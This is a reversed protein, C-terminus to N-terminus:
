KTATQAPPRSQASYAGHRPGLGLNTQDWCWPCDGIVNHPCTQGIMASQPPRVSDSSPAAHEKNNVPVGLPPLFLYNVLSLIAFTLSFTWGEGLSRSAHLTISVFVGAQRPQTSRRRAAHPPSQHALTASSRM